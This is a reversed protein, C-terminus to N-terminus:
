NLVTCFGKANQNPDPRKPINLTIAKSKSIDRIQCMWEFSWPETVQLGGRNDIMTKFKTPCKDVVLPVTDPIIREGNGNLFSLQVTCWGDGTIYLPIQAAQAAFNMTLALFSVIGLTLVKRNKM